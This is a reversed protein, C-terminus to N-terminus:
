IFQEWERKGSEYLVGGDIRYYEEYIPAPTYGRLGWGKPTYESYTDALIILTTYIETM